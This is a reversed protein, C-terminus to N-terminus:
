KERSNKIIPIRLMIGPKQAGMLFLETGRCCLALHGGPKILSYGQRLLLEIQPSPPLEHEEIVALVVDFLRLSTDKSSKNLAEISATEVKFCQRKLWSGMAGDADRHCFIRTKKNILGANVMAAM